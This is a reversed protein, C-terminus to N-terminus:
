DNDNLLDEKRQFEEPIYWETISNLTHTFTPNIEGRINNNVLVSSNTFFLSVYPLEDIILSQIDEYIRKKDEARITQQALTLLEDMKENSYGLFNSGSNIESSHFAFSLDPIYSMEWGLLVIDFNGGTIKQMLGEWQNNKIEETVNEGKNENYDKVVDIGISILNNAIINATERRLDNYSNTTLRLSLRNGDIDEFFGDKDEDKWGASTLIQRAKNANFGYSNAEDSILWSDPHIPVDNRTAHGLYVKEIISQRDIAYAIAKRLGKGKEGMFMENRFNFGLFEYKNSTFEYIDVKKNQAYKEWDVGLSTTLDIQGSEFSTIALKEDKLSKGIVKSIYPEGKWYDKNSELIVEKLKKNEVVKYPGTGIAKYGDAKLAREYAIRINKERVFIHSPVIPFILGELANGYARDFTLRLNLEDIVKVEKLYKLSYSLKIIDPMENSLINSSLGYKLADITFKVDNSTFDEGDHWKVNDRLTINLVTGDGDFSYSEALVNKVSLDSDVDFLGEFILKSFAYLTRDTALIPNLTITYPLPVIIEGGYIPTDDINDEFGIESDNTNDLNEDLNCGSLTFIQLIVIAILLCLKKSRM